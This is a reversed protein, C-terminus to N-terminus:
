QCNRMEKACACGSEGSYGAKQVLAMGCKQCTGPSVSREEPHMPCAWTPSSVDSGSTRHVPMWMIGLAYGFATGGATLDSENIWNVALNVPGVDQSFVVRTELVRERDPEAGTEVYPPVVWGSVEMKYRTQIHLDEFEAYVLPNMPVDREFLRLRNEWRFGTFKGTGHEIDHFGEIMFETAYRNYLEYELELMESFYDGHGAGLRHAESPQTFDQMYMLEFEGDEIKSNYTTFWGNNGALAPSCAASSLVAGIVLKRFARPCRM